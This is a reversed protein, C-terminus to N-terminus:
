EEGAKSPRIHRMTRAVLESTRVRGMLSGTEIIEGVPERWEPAICGVGGRMGLISGVIAANCGADFAAQVASCVSRGFNGEGYLLAATVIGANPLIGAWENSSGSDCFRRHLSNYFNEEGGGRDYFDIVGSVCEYLRSSTPIQARGALVIDRVNETAAAAALMAAAYMSGYIGNKVHSVSADRWAMGAAAEPDGPNIYGYYDARAWAGASERYPNEYVASDPPYYGCILNRM